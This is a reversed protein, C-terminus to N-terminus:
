VRNTGRGNLSPSPSPENGANVSDNRCRCDSVARHGWVFKDTFPLARRERLAAGALLVEEIEAVEENFGFRGGSIGLARPVCEFTADMFRIAAGAPGVDPEAAMEPPFIFALFFIEGSGVLLQQLITFIEFVRRQEDDAIEVAELDVRIESARDLLDMFEAQCFERLWLVDVEQAAGEGVGFGEARALSGFADGGLGGFDNALDGVTHALAADGGMIGGMEEHLQHERHKGLVDVQEAVFDERL